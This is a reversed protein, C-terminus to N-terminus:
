GKIINRGRLGLHRAGALLRADNSYIERYGEEQACALHLADGARLFLSAPAKRYIASVRDLVADTLPLWLFMGAECDDGFQDLLESLRAANIRKERLCRHFAAVMEARAHALSAPLTSASEVLARVEASGADDLYLRALYATDFYM